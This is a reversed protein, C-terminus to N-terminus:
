AGKKALTSINKLMERCGVRLNFPRLGFMCFNHWSSMEPSSRLMAVKKDAFMMGLSNLPILLANSTAIKQWKSKLEM